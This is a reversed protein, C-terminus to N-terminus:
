GSGEPAFRNLCGDLRERTKRLLGMPDGYHRDGLSVGPVRPGDPFRETVDSGPMRLWVRYGGGYNVEFIDGGCFPCDLMISQKNPNDAMGEIPALSQATLKEGKTARKLFSMKTRWIGAECFSCCLVVLEEPLPIKPVQVPKSKKAM